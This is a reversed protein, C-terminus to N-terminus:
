YYDTIKRINKEFAARDAARGKLRNRYTYVTNLSLGLVHSLDASGDIGMSLFAAIRLEPTLRGEPEPFTKGPLLLSNLRVIFEPYAKLFNEDFAAFFAENFKGAYRGSSVTDFLDKSQGAALKREVLLTFDRNKEIALLALALMARPATGHPEPVAPESDPEPAGEKGRFYIRMAIDAAVVVTIVLLIYLMYDKPKARKRAEALSKYGSALAHLDDHTLDPGLGSAIDLCVLADDYDGRAVFHRGLDLLVSASQQGRRAENRALEELYYIHRDSERGAYYDSLIGCVSGYLAGREDLRGLSRAFVPVAYASDGRLVQSFAAALELTDTDLAALSDLVSIAKDTQQRSANRASDVLEIIAREAAYPAAVACPLSFLLIVISLIINKM